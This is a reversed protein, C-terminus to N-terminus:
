PPPPPPALQPRSSWSSDARRALRLNRSVADLTARAAAEIESDASSLGHCQDGGPKALAVAVLPHGALATEIPRAWEAEVPSAITFGERVAELTADAAGVLGRSMPARGITRTTGDGLHVEVESTEAVTVVGLIEPRSDAAPSPSVPPSSTPAVGSATQVVPAAGNSWLPDRELDAGDTGPRAMWRVVDVAIPLDCHRGAIRSAELALDGRADHMAHVQILLRDGLETFAVWRIGPLKRLELELDDLNM